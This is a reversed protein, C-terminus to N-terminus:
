LELWQRRGHDRVLYVAPRVVRAALRPEFTRVLEVFIDNAPEGLGPAPVEPALLLNGACTPSPRAMEYASRMERALVKDVPGPAWLVSRGSRALLAFLARYTARKDRYDDRDGVIVLTDDALEPLALVQKLSAVAGRVPGLAIGGAMALDAM